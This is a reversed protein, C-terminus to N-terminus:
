FSRWEPTYAASALLHPLFLLYRLRPASRKYAEIPYLYAIFASSRAGFRQRWCNQRAKVRYWTQLEM